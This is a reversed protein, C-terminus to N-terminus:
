IERIDILWQMDNPAMVDKLDSDMVIYWKIPRPDNTHFTFRDLEMQSYVVACATFLGNDVWCLLWEDDTIADTLVKPPSKLETAYSQLWVEKTCDKTEIYIGM